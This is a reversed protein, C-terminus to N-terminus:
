GACLHDLVANLVAHLSQYDAPSASLIRTADQVWEGGASIEAGGAQVMGAVTEPTAELHCQLGIVHQGLQFGQEHCAVSSALRQADHPLAFTDGHWHFAHLSDPFRFTDSGTPTSARVDFWGIEKHAGARVVAGLAAALQQAGLCVGLTPLDATARARLWEREDALWPLRTTDNVSMPGGMAIALEAALPHPLRQGHDLHVVHLTCHHRALWGAIAGTGEFDAHQLIIAQM